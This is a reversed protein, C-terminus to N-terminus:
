KVDLVNITEFSGFEDEETEFTVNLCETLVKRVEPECLVDLLKIFDRHKQPPCVRNIRDLVELGITDHLKEKIELLSNYEKGQYVFKSIEKVTAM